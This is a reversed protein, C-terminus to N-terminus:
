QSVMMKAAADSYIGKGQSIEKRLAQPSPLRQATQASSLREPTDPESHSEASSTGLGSYSGDHNDSEDHDHRTEAVSSTKMASGVFGPYSVKTGFGFGPM